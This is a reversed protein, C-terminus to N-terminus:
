STLSAQLKQLLSDFLHMSPLDDSDELLEWHKGLKSQVFKQEQVLEEMLAAGDSSADKEEEEEDILQSHELSALAHLLQSSKASVERADEWVSSILGEHEANKARQAASPSSPQATKRKGGVRTQVNLVGGRNKHQILLDNVHRCLERFAAVAMGFRVINMALERNGETAEVPTVAIDDMRKCRALTEEEAILNALDMMGDNHKQAINDSLSTVWVRFSASNFARFTHCKGQATLLRFTHPLRHGLPVLHYGSYRSSSHQRSSADSLEGRELLLSRHLQISKHTGVRVSSLMEDSSAGNGEKLPKMRGIVWMHDESLVCYVRRWVNPDRWSQKLLYGSVLFSPDSLDRLMAIRRKETILQRMQLSKPEDEGAKGEERCNSGDDDDDHDSDSEEEATCYGELDVFAPTSQIKPSHASPGAGGMPSCPQFYFRFSPQPGPRHSTDEALHLGMEEEARRRINRLEAMMEDRVQLPHEEPLATRVVHIPEPSGLSPEERPLHAAPSQKSPSTLKGRSSSFDIEGRLMGWQTHGPGRGVVAAGRSSSLDLGIAGGSAGRTSAGLPSLNDEGDPATFAGASDGGSSAPALLASSVWGPEAGSAQVTAASESAPLHAMKKALSLVADEHNGAIVTEESNERARASHANMGHQAQTPGNEPQSRFHRLVELRQQEELLEEHEFRLYGRPMGELTGVLVLADVEEEEADENEDNTLGGGGYSTRAPSRNRQPSGVRQSPASPLGFKGRLLATVDRARAKDTLRVAASTTATQPIGGPRNRAQRHRGHEHQPPAAASNFTSLSSFSHSSSESADFQYLGTPATPYDPPHVEHSSHRHLTPASRSAGDASGGGASRPAFIQLYIRHSEQRNM